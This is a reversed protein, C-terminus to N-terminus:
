QAKAFDLQTELSLLYNINSIQGKRFWLDDSSSVHDIKNIEVLNDELEDMLQKWGYTSFMEQYADFYREDMETSM